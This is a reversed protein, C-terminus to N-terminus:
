RASEMGAALERYKATLENRQQEDPVEGIWDAADGLQDLNKATVMSEMVKAFTTAPAGTATAAGAATGTTAATAGTDFTRASDAKLADTKFAAHEKTKVLRAQEDPPLTKWFAGYAAAGKAAAASGAAFLESSWDSGLGGAPIVDGMDKPPAIEELEDPTYVGLLVDPAYLRAWRRQALYAIQQKPDETWLGSNRTRCQTMLLTLVRPTSEGKITGSVNIGLGKEDNINWDPVIYKKPNGNEDQKKTSTVEKFKGIIKEWPGFWDLHLRDIMLPSNNVVAAVLQGEYGLTGNVLNTKQAVAFPNMGWQMAQMTVAMCDGANGRLHQPITSKGSAMLEAMRIMRDMNAGDMMLAMVSTNHSSVALSPQPTQPTLATTM